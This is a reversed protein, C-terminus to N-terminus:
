HQIILTGAKFQRTLNVGGCEWASSEGYQLSERERERKRERERERQSGISQNRNVNIFKWVCRVRGNIVILWQLCSQIMIGNAPRLADFFCDIKFHGIRFKTQKMSSEIQSM